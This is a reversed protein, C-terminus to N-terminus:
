TRLLDGDRQAIIANAERRRDKQAVRDGNVVSDDCDIRRSAAGGCLDLDLVLVINQDADPCVAPM